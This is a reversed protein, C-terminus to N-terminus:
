YGIVHWHKYALTRGLVYEVKHKAMTRTLHELAIQAQRKDKFYISFGREVGTATIVAWVRRVGKRGYVGVNTKFRKM